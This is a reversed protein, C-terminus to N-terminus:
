TAGGLPYVWWHGDLVEPRARNLRNAKAEAEARTPAFVGLVARYGVMLVVMWGM